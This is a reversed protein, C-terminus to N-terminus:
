RVAIINAKVADLYVTKIPANTLDIEWALHFELADTRANSPLVFIVLERANPKNDATPKFSQQNNNADTYTLGNDQVRKVAEESTMQPTVSSLETQIRETDPICTSSLNLMRRDTTFHIQLKGYDGRLPYRFPRQEYNALKTGDSQNQSQVLSLQAPDAGILSRWDNIFRRLSERTEEENM